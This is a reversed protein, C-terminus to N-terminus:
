EDRRVWEMLEKLKREYTYCNMVRQYGANAIQERETDHALYYEAKEMLEEPTKFMVIERDEEFLEATESCYNTLMFGGAGIVDM